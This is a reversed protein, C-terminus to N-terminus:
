ESPKFMVIEHLTTGTERETAQGRTVKIEFDSILRFYGPKLRLVNRAIFRLAPSFNDLMDEAELVRNVQLNAELKDPVKISIARPYRYKARANYEYDKKVFEFDGTSLIVNCENALMLVKVAHNDMKKNCQIYAYCLTYHDSYIRGWMWYDIIMPFQFNLWNHDHYGIGKVQLVHDGETVTGEVRARAFPIVWAFYGMNGFHSIGSGPKWGNVESTYTLRCGLDKENVYIEYRPLQGDLQEFRVYNDGIRVDARDEAAFFKSKDYPIFKQVKTGDPRHLVIEVGPKGGMGPNPNAVHFFVVITHGTDLHADFYWWEYTGKSGVKTHIGDEEPKLPTINADCRGPGTWGENVMTTKGDTM